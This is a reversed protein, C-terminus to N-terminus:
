IYRDAVLIDNHYLQRNGNAIYPRGFHSFDFAIHRDTTTGASTEVIINDVRNMQWRDWTVSGISHADRRNPINIATFPMSIILLACVVIVATFFKYKRIKALMLVAELSLFEDCNVSILDYVTPKLFMIKQRM